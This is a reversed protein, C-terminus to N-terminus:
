RKNLWTWELFHIAEPDVCLSPGQKSAITNTHDEYLGIHGKTKLQIKMNSRSKETKVIDDGKLWPVSHNSKKEVVYM